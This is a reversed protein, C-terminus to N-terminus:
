GAAALRAKWPEAIAETSWKMGCWARWDRARERVKLKRVGIRGGKLSNLGVPKVDQEDRGCFRGTAILFLKSNKCIWDASDHFLILDDDVFGIITLCYNIDAKFIFHYPQGTLLDCDQEIAVVFGDTLM